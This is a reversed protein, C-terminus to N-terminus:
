SQRKSICKYIETELKPATKTKNVLEKANDCVVCLRNFISEMKKLTDDSHIILEGM